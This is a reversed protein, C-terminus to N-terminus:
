GERPPLNQGLAKGFENPNHSQVFIRGRGRFNMVVGEGGLFSRLWSGGAKSISYELRDEFAVVHGTDVTLEGDVDIPHVAGFANVLLTGSGGVRLFFISEGTFLGKLGQFKTEVELTSDSGLYSGGSCYWAASGDLEISRVEGQLTPALGVEGAAGDTVRYTSFFFNEAAILRKLGGLIGGKGRSKTTVDIDVNSSARYMAGSESVFEDGPDLHVLASGFAGKSLIDIRM